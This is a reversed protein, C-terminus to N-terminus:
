LANSYRLGINPIKWNRFGEILVIDLQAPRLNALFNQPINEKTSGTEAILAWKKEREL